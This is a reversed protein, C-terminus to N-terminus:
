YEGINKGGAAEVLDLRRRFSVLLNRFLQRNSKLRQLVQNITRVLVERTIDKPDVELLEDEVQEQMIAGISEAPNLDASKGPWRGFGNYRFFDLKEDDLLEHTQKARMCGAMDHLFTVDEFDGQRNRKNRLFPLVNQKLITERFYDGDWSQGQEKIKWMLSKATFLIFVGVCEASRTEPAMLLDWVDSRTEGWVVDNKSNPKRLSYVFFEDCPALHLCDNENWDKLHACIDQRHEINLESLWCRRIRRFPKCGLERLTRLVTMHSVPTGRNSLKKRIRRCSEKRKKTLSKVFNLEDESLTRKKGSHGKRLDTFKGELLDTKWWKRVSKENIELKEAIWEANIPNKVKLHRNEQRLQAFYRTIEKQAVRFAACAIRKRILSDAM